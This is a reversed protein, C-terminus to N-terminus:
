ASLRSKFPPGETNKLFGDKIYASRRTKSFDGGSGTAESSVLSADICFSPLEPTRFSILRLKVRARRPLDLRRVGTGVLKLSDASAASLPPCEAPSIASAAPILLCDMTFQARHATLTAAGFRDTSNFSTSLRAAPGAALTASTPEDTAITRIRSVDPATMTSGTAESSARNSAASLPLAGHDRSVALAPDPKRPVPHVEAPM